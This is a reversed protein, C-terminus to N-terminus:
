GLKRGLARRLEVMAMTDQECYVRLNEFIEDRAAQDEMGRAKEYMGAAVRGDAIKMGEYTLEPVLAPLVSKISFSGHFDPHYYHRQVIPLLDWLRPLLVDLEAQLEPLRVSLAKIVTREYSSYVCISGGKGLDSVLQTALERRPDDGDGCLYELHKVEGSKEERHISYQFPVADYPHTGAFVPIAPMFAEFDLHHVPYEINALEEALGESVWDDGSIVAARVRTQTENLSFDSPIDSIEDIERDLLQQRKEASLRPLNEVPHELAPLGKTCHAYYPCPYPTSCQEGPEVQPAEDKELGAQLSAVMTEVEDHMAIADSTLDVFKFLQNLDLNQGDFAYARNLLLLGTNRILLGSNRAIWVQIALDRLYVDKSKTASKVEILDWEDAGARQLIDVRASVNNHILAPEFLAPTSADRLAEATQELALDTEYYEATIPKGGPYREQALLGIRTGSDFITQRFDDVPTALHKEFCDYWLKLSCQAGSQIRSKSLRPPKSTLEGVKM